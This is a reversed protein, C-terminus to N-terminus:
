LRALSSWTSEIHCWVPVGLNKTRAWQDSNGRMRNMNITNEMSSEALDVLKWGKWFHKLYRDMYLNWQLQYEDPFGPYIVEM